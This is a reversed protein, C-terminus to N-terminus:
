LKAMGKIARVLGKKLNENDEARSTLKLRRETTKRNGTCQGLKEMLPMPIAADSSVLAPCAFGPASKKKCFVRHRRQGAYLSHMVPEAIGAM